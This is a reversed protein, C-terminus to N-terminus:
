EVEGSAEELARKWETVNCSHGEKVRCVGHTSICGNCKEEVAEYLAAYLKPSAKMLRVDGTKSVGTICRRNADVVVDVGLVGNDEIEWPTQSIRLDSPPKM